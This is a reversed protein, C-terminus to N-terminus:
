VYGNFIADESEYDQDFANIYSDFDDINRFRIHTERSQDAISLKGVMEFEGTCNKIREQKIEQLKKDIVHIKILNKLNLNYNILFILLKLKLWNM